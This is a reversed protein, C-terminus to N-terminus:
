SSLTNKSHKEMYFLELYNMPPHGYIYIYVFYYRFTERDYIYIYIGFKFVFSIISTGEFLLLGLFMHLMSCHHKAKAYGGGKKNAGKM